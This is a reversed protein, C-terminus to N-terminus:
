GNISMVLPLIFYCFISILMIAVLNLIFGTKIMEKLPIHGSSFVIANPPTGMPLMSAASAALTMPLGLMLPDLKMAVAVSSIVPAMVIVQAVNSMVESLFISITSVLLIMLFTNDTSLSAIYRGLLELLKANELEKALAIGGGFLLLIGWAMKGTDSWAVLREGAHEGEKKGCPIMFLLLGGAMAIITDDLRAGPLLKNIIDKSIWLFVTLSFVALVRKEAASMNGMKSLEGEIFHRGDENKKIRNPYLWKVTIFYLAFLMCFTLPTFCLMWDAFGISYNFREQIHAVYAVNPPTAIITGFGFNSAYAISLMLVLSFNRMSSGPQPHEKMVHIVSLAIPFMMMTTATNSLWLSLFGTSLIFGLIINDGNTGVMRIINLAIRKHLHWKEIALALFFGGMFLFIISDAYYGTVTKLPSINFLPFLIIPLLAVAPLPMPGLVWWSIMLAAVSLVLNAKTELSVPNFLFLLLSIILGAALALAKEHKKILATLGRM